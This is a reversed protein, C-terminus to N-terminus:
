TLGAVQNGDTLWDLRQEWDRAYGRVGEERGARENAGKLGREVLHTNRISEFPNKPAM